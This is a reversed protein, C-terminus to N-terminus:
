QDMSHTKRRIASNRNLREKLYWSFYTSFKYQETGDRNKLFREAAVKIDKILQGHLQAYTKKTMEFKALARKIYQDLYERLERKKPDPSQVLTLEYEKSQPFTRPM